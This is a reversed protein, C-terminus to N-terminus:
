LRETYRRHRCDPVDPEGRNSRKGFGCSARAQTQARAVAHSDIQFLSAFIKSAGLLKRLPSRLERLGGSLRDGRAAFSCCAISTSRSRRITSAITIIKPGDFVIARGEFAEPNESRIFIPRPIGELDREDEHNCQRLSKRKLVIFGADEMVMPQDYARIVDRDLFVPRAIKESPKQQKVTPAKEHIKCGRDIRGV